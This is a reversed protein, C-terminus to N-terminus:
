TLMLTVSRGLGSCVTVTVTSAGSFYSLLADREPGLARLVGTGADCRDGMRPGFVDEGMTGRPAAVPRPWDLWESSEFEDVCDLREVLWGFTEDLAALGMEASMGSDWNSAAAV